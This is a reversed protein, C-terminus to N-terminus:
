NARPATFGTVTLTVPFTGAAMTVSGTCTVTVLADQVGKAKGHGPGFTLTGLPPESIVVRTAVVVGGGALQAVAAHEAPSVLVVPQGACTVDFVEANAGATADAGAVGATGLALAGALALTLTFRTMTRM